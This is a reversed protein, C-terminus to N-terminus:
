VPLTKQANFSMLFFPLFEFYVSQYLEKIACAFLLHKKMASFTKNVFTQINAKNNQQAFLKVYRVNTWLDMLRDLENDAEGDYHFAYLYGAFITDIKM